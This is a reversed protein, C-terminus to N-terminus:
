LSNFFLAPYNRNPAQPHAAAIYTGWSLPILPKILAIEAIEKM